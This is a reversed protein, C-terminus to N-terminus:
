SQCECSRQNWEIIAKEKEKEAGIGRRGSCESCIVIYLGLWEMLDKNIEASGDCFPCPKLEPQNTM